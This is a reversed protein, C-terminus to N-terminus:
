DGSVGPGLGELVTRTDPAVSGKAIYHRETVATGSHGLQAAAADVGLSAEIATAVTRRLAHPTVRGELGTGRLAARLSTRFNAPSRLGGGRAPFVYQSAGAAIRQELLIATAWSPLTLVLGEDGKLSHGKRGEQRHLGREPDHVVAGRVTVTAPTTALDVDEWRLALVESVRAGTALMLDIIRGVDRSRRPDGAEWEAIASRLRALEDRTLVVTRRKGGVTPTLNHIPNTPIAGQRVALAFAQILVTRMQRARGPAEEFVTQLHHDALGPTVEGVRLRGMTPVIRTRVVSRYDALSSATIHGRRERYALWFAMLEEVTTSSTLEAGSASALHAIVGRLAADAARKTPGSRQAQRTRGDAGRVRTRATWSGDPRQSYTITGHTGIALPPRGRRAM